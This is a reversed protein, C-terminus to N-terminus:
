NVSDPQLELVVGRVADALAELDYMATKNSIGARRAHWFASSYAIPVCDPQQLAIVAANRRERESFRKEAQAQPTMDNM